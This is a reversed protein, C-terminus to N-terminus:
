IRVRPRSVFWLPRLPIPCSLNPCFNGRRMRREGGTTSSERRINNTARAVLGLATAPSEGVREWVKGAPQFRTEMGRCGV